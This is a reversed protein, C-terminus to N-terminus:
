GIGLEKRWYKYMARIAAESILTDATGAETDPDMEILHEGAISHKMGDQVFKMAENDEMGLFGAPGMLNGQRMRHRQQEDTDGEFGFMTWNMVFENPGNPVIQRVGLTNMERQVILNPWLTMMTVSWRSDFEDDFDLIEPAKLKLDANYARMEKSDEESVKGAESKASAMVGHRGTEDCIMEAENGAVLLGFSVLFSHLLTAHYPDKLNEHYLKWNGPLTNRYYGLVKLKRGDFTADFEETIRPGLYDALSEMNPDFSAFIVGGRTTVALKQPNHDSAIFDSPLGGKGGVGRRFPIGSLNGKLDYTWQHYPCVFEKNNGRLERCFEVARHSCRNLFVNVEGDEDRSVVVPTPGVNSRIFDGAEPIEAELGVYNWTSGHFIKDVELQFIAPDTYVWDPIRRLGKEPWVYYQALNSMLERRNELAVPTDSTQGLVSELFGSLTSIDLRQAVWARAKRIAAPNDFAIVGSLREGDHLYLVEGGEQSAPHIKFEDSAAPLGLMQINHDFQDSWFWPVTNYATEIGAMTKAVSLAQEQANHWSELRLQGDDAGPWAAVDGAAFVDDASTRGFRDVFIGNRIDIGAAKALESNPVVGIGVVVTDVLLPEGDELQLKVGSGQAEIASVRASTRVDVGSAEAIDHLRLAAQPHLARACLRSEAELLTVECCQKRAASAVEMGIFGGGIIAVRGARKLARKLAIADECTRLEHVQPLDAGPIPLPRPRAGTAILLSDYELTSKDSFTVSKTKTNLYEATLGCRVEIKLEEIAHRDLLTAEQTSATGLLVDKSLPPREYPLDLEDSILVVEGTFDADRLGRAATAAAQGGGLIVFRRTDAESAVASSEDVPMDAVKAPRDLDVYLQGGEFKTAYTPIDKTVPSGMAKGTRIDFRGQHLPCEVCGDGVFGDNLLAFQHTCVNGTAFYEEQVRYVAVREGDVKVAMVGHDEALETAGEVLKWAM